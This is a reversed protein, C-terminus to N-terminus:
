QRRYLTVVRGSRAVKVFGIPENANLWDREIRQV